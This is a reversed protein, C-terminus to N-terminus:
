LELVRGQGANFRVTHPVNQLSSGSMLPASARIYTTVSPGVAEMVAWARLPYHLDITTSGLGAALGPDTINGILNEVVEGKEADNWTGDSGAFDVFDPWTREVIDYAQDSAYVSGGNQVYQRLNDIATQSRFFVSGFPADNVGCNFFVIDYQSLTTYNELLDRAWTSGFSEGNYFTINAPDIGIDDLVDEVRDWTGTVVAVKLDPPDLQCEDEPITYTGNAPVDVARTTSFSGKEIYVTQPGSPVDILTFRGEADTTTQARTGDGRLVYVTADGLWTVGDPACVRGVVSGSDPPAPPPECTEPSPITLLQGDVVEIALERYFANRQIKLTQPGAPVGELLFYGTDDTGSAFLTGIDTLVFVNAQTVWQGVSEDCVRGDVSGAPFPPPVPPHCTSDQFRAERGSIVTIEVERDGESAHIVITAKGAAVHSVLFLGTADTSAEHEKGVADRITVPVGGLAAGTDASCVVGSLSGPYAYLEEDCNCGGFTSLVLCSGLLLRTNM